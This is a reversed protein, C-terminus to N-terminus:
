AEALETGGQPVGVVLSGEETSCSKGGLEGRVGSEWVVELLARKRKDQLVSLSLRLICM